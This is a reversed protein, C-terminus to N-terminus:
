IGEKTVKEMVAVTIQMTVSIALNAIAPYESTHNIPPKGEVTFDPIIRGCRYDETVSIFRNPQLKGMDVLSSGLDLSV